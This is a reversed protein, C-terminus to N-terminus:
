VSESPVKLEVTQTLEMARDYVEQGPLGAAEAEDIWAQHITDKIADRWEAIEADTLYIMTHNNDLAFQTAAAIDAQDLVYFKDFWWHGSNLLIDQLDQPLSELKETNMIEFMPSVDMGGDGFITHCTLLELTGFVMLVPFHNLVGQILNTEVSPTMDMIDFAIGTAGLENLMEVLIAEAGMMKLGVLDAPTHIEAGTTHIHTPPMMMFALITVGEWEAAMEPFEELLTEYANEVHQGPWGMFPLSMITSLLFGEARDAVYHGGDCAGTEVARYVEDGAFLAGGHIIEIELRGDSEAMVQEAWYDQAQAPGSGPPNHDNFVLHYVEEEEEQEAPPPGEEEEQEAPPTVEEEGCAVAFLPMALLSLILLGILLKRKV